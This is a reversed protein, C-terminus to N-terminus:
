PVAHILPIFIESVVDILQFRLLVYDPASVEVHCVVLNVYGVRVVLARAVGVFFPSRKRLSQRLPPYVGPPFSIWGFDLVAIPVYLGLGPFGVFAPPKVVENDVLRQVLCNLVAQNQVLNHSAVVAWDM